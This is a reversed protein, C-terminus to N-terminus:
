IKELTVCVTVDSLILLRIICILYIINNAEIFNLWIYKLVSMIFSKKLLRYIFRGIVWNQKFRQKVM